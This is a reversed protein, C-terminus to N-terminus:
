ETLQQVHRAKQTFLNAVDDVKQNIQAQIKQRNTTKLAIIDKTLESV